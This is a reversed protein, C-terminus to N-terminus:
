DFEVRELDQKKAADDPQQDDHRNQRVRAPALRPGAVPFKVQDPVADVVDTLEAPEEGYGHDGQGLHEGDFERHRDPGGHQRGEQQRLAQRGDTRKDDGDAEDGGCAIVMMLVLTNLHVELPLLYLFM